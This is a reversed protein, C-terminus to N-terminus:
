RLGPHRALLEVAAAGRLGVDDDAAKAEGIREFGFADGGLPRDLEQERRDLAVLLGAIEGLQEGTREDAACPQLDLRHLEREPCVFARRVDARHADGGGHLAHVVHQM